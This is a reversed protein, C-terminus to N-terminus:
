EHEVKSTLKDHERLALAQLIGQFSSTVAPTDEMKSEGELTGIRTIVGPAVGLVWQQQGVQVVLLRERAGIPMAALIRMPSHMRMMGPM